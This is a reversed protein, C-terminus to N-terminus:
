VYALFAVFCIDDDVAEAGGGEVDLGAEGEGVLWDQKELSLASKSEARPPSLTVKWRCSMDENIKEM